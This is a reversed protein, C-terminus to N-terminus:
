EANRTFRERDSKSYFAEANICMERAADYTTRSHSNNKSIISAVNYHNPEAQKRPCVFMSTQESTMFVVNDVLFNISTEDYCFTHLANNKAADRINRRFFLCDNNFRTTGFFSDTSLMIETLLHTLNSIASSYYPSFTKWLEYRDRLHYM